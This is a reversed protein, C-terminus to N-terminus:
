LPLALVFMAMAGAALPISFNDEIRGSFLETLTGALAVLVSALLVMALSYGGAVVAFYFVLALVAIAFFGLSGELSKEGWM